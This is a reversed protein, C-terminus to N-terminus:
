LRALLAAPPMVKVRADALEIALPLGDLRVCIGAVAEANEDTLGFDPRVARAREAFLRVAASGAAVDPSPVAPPPLPLPPVPYEREGSLRLRVRSTVLVALSPCAALLDAVLPAAEVVQEFNDLVILLREDRLSATLRDTLPADGAERVGVTQAVTPAVHDPDSVPALAVFCVGDPFDDAVSSALDVALRTKGVGGPGTLTLLRTGEDLLLARLDALECDRGVLRTLPAPLASPPALAVAPSAM